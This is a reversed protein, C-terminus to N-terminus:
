GDATFAIQGIRRIGAWMWETMASLDSESADDSALTLSLM